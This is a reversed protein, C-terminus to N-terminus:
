AGVAARLRAKDLRAYIVTSAISANNLAAQTLQLDGTKSLAAALDPHDHCSRPRNTGSKRVAQRDRDRWV